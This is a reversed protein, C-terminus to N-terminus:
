YLNPIKIRRKRWRTTSYDKSNNKLYKQLWEKQRSIIKLLM